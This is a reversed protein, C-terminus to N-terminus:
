SLHVLVNIVDTDDGGGTDTLTEYAKGIITGIAPSGPAKMAHGATSSSVMLDGPSITGNETICKTPVIGMMGVPVVNREPVGYYLETAEPERPWTQDVRVITKGGTYESSLVTMGANSYPNDMRVHTDAAYNATQDGDIEIYVYDHTAEPGTEQQWSWTNTELTGQDMQFDSIPSNGVMGPATSYVGVISASNASSSKEIQEDTSSIVLVDGEEYNSKDLTTELKEAYDAGSTYTGTDNRCTGNAEMRFEIDSGASICELFEYLTSETTNASLTMVADTSAMGADPVDVTFSSSPTGNVSVRVNAGNYYSQYSGGAGYLQMIYGTSNQDGIIATGTGAHNCRIGTGAGGKTCIIGANSSSNSTVTIGYSSTSSSNVDICPQTNLTSTQNVDICIGRGGNNIEIIDASTSTSSGDCQLCKGQATTKNNDLYLLDGNGSGTATVVVANGTGSYAVDLAPGSSTTSSNIDVLPVTRAKSAESVVIGESSTSSGGNYIYVVESSSTGTKQVELALGSSGSHFIRQATGAGTMNLYFAIDSSSKDINLSNTGTTTTIDIGYTAGTQSINIGSGQAATIQIADGIGTQSIQLADSTGSQNLIVPGSDVTITRGDNYADDLGFTLDAALHSHSVPAYLSSHTHLSSADGHGTLTELEAGTADTVDSHSAINHSQPHHDNATRGTTDVHAHTHSYVYTHYHLTTFGHGTLEELEDGTADTVDSHSVITHSQPHHDNATRGTTSAHTHSHAAPADTTWAVAQNSGADCYLRNLDSRYWFDGEATTGPHTSTRNTFHIDAYTNVSSAFNIGYLGSSSTVINIGHGAGSESIDVGHGTGSQYIQVGVGTASGGMSVQVGSGGGSTAAKNVFLATGTGLQEVTLTEGTVNANSYFRGCHGSSSIAPSHSCQFLYGSTGLPHTSSIRFVTHNAASAYTSEFNLIRPGDTTYSWDYTSAAIRNSTTGYFFNSGGVGTSANNVRIAYSGAGSGTRDIELSYDAGSSGSNILKLPVGGNAGTRELHLVDKNTNGTCIIHVPDSAAGSFTIVRGAGAGAGDYAIQLTVSDSHSAITHSQPHHDNATRGTTSAHTHTHATPTDGVWAVQKAASTYVELRNATADYWVDGEAMTGPNATRNTFHIDAKGGTTVGSFNLGFGSGSHSISIGAGSGAHDVHIGSGTHNSGGSVWVGRGSIYDVAIAVANAGWSGSGPDKLIELTNTTDAVANNMVVAGNSVTISRGAGAGGEDYAQDLTNQTNAHTHLHDANTTDTLETLESGTTTTDHSVITHSGVSAHIHLHDADTGDTLETLESGTTTTDHSVITHGIAAYAAAHTHLVGVDGGGTLTNLEAGTATTDHSVITHGIAAYAAAHTHLAGVDGGGTLTELQAGTADTVDSHSTITHSENHLDSSRAIALFGGGNNSIEWRDNAASYRLTGDNDSGQNAVVDIDAGGGANDSDISLTTGPIELDTNFRKIRGASTILLPLAM